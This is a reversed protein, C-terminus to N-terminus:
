IQEFCFGNTSDGGEADNVSYHSNFGEDNERIIYWQGHEFVSYINKRQHFHVRAVTMIRSQMTKTNKECNLM